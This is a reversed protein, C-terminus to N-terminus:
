IGEREQVECEVLWGRARVSRTGLRIDRLATREAHVAAAVIGCGSAADRQSATCASLRRPKGAVGTSVAAALVVAAALLEQRKDSDVRPWRRPLKQRLLLEPRRSPTRRGPKILAQWNSPVSTWAYM